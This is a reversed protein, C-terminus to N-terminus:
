GRRGQVQKPVGSVPQPNTAIAVPVEGGEIAAAVRDGGIVAHNGTRGVVPGCEQWASPIEYTAATDNGRAPPAVVQHCQTVPAQNAQPVTAALVQNM